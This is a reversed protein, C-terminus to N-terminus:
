DCLQNGSIQSMIERWVSRKGWSGYIDMFDLHVTLISSPLIKQFHLFVFDTEEPYKGWWWTTSLFNLNAVTPFITNIPLVGLLVTPSYPAEGGREAHRRKGTKLLSIRCLQSSQQLTFASLAFFIFLWIDWCSENRGSEWWGWILWSLLLSWIFVNLFQDQEVTIRILSHSPQESTTQSAAGPTPVSIHFSQEGPLSRQNVMFMLYFSCFKKKM